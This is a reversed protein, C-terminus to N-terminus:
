NGRSPLQTLFMLLQRQKCTYCSELSFGALSFIVVKRKKLDNTKRNVKTTAPAAAAISVKSRRLSVCYVSTVERVQAQLDQNVNRLNRMILENETRTSIRELRIENALFKNERRM